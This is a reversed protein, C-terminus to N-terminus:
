LRPDVPDSELALTGLVCEHIREVSELHVFRKIGEMGLSFEKLALKQKKNTNRKKLRTLNEPQLYDMGYIIHLYKRGRVKIAPQILKGKSETLFCEPKIVIGEHGDETLREWWVIVEEESEQNTIIKYETEVFFNSCEAFTRNMDMHWLHTQHFFTEKSHALLHFPAIQIQEIDHVDWCYQQFVYKFLHANDLKTEYEDLWSQLGDMNNKAKTLKDKITKRDLIAHESVHAYQSKILEQAKLNWPMIEADLLIFDTDYKEFYGSKLLDNNINILLKEETAEDFFRRGSRTYITGLGERGVYKVSAQKDKFLLLIARSGMHKKEAILTQIGKSRYYDIAEQPHELYDEKQSPNPTPSMTPPIYVLDELPVTFHSFTDIAPYVYEKPIKVNGFDSTVSYGELYKEINPPNLRIQEWKKLPNDVEQAYNEKAPISILQKEPYRFATLKGGFVAGQDINLTNNNIFPAPKPEHGWIILHSTKHDVTWDVRVPKGREDLGDTEGYRCFDQIDPSQKSIFEDKIGAHTCVVLGIGNQKLVYHSPAELLLKKLRIALKATEEEGQRKEYIQFEEEVKEDGHKLTVNKGDLWRAIKWGHNSDIMYALDNEVHELFFLMTNLSQPGRSMIDGLSLFKRGEPHVYHGQVDKEYGLKELLLLLEDFCGHIDGIIDIGAGIELELPNKKRILHIDEDSNMFYTALYPEKKIFRKEKKFTHYQQKIRRKGRPFDRKEDRELLLEQDTDFVLSVIPLHNKQAITIMRMRDEPNLHTADVFTRKNLKCRSQILTDMIAFAEISISKYEDFLLDVQDQSDGEMNIFEKDSVLLRCDDSSVIESPDIQNEELLKKLFTTKGSNSPGILLVICAHPLVIDM